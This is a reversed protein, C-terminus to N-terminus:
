SCAQNTLCTTPTPVRGESPMRRSAARILMGAAGEHALLDGALAVLTAGAALRSM